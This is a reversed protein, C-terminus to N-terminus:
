RRGEEFREKRQKAVRVYRGVNKIDVKCKSKLIGVTWDKGNVGIGFTEVRLDKLEKCNCMFHELDENEGCMPCFYPGRQSRFRRLYKRREGFPMFNGKISIFWRIDEGQFGVKFYYEEGWAEKVEVHVGLCEAATEVQLRGYSSRWM